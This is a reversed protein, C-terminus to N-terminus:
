QFEKRARAFSFRALLHTPCHMLAVALMVALRKAAARPETGYRVSTSRRIGAARRYVVFRERAQDDYVNKRFLWRHTYQFSTKV